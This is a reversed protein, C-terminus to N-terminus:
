GTEDPGVIRLTPRKAPFPAVSGSAPILPGDRLAAVVKPFETQWDKFLTGENTVLFNMATAYLARERVDAPLILHALVWTGAVHSFDINLTASDSM